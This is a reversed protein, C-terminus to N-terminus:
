GAEALGVSTDTDAGHNLRRRNNGDAWPTRGVAPRRLGNSKNREIWADFDRRTAGANKWARPDKLKVSPPIVVVSSRVAGSALLAASLMHAGDQGPYYNSGDPRRHPADHDGFIVVDRRPGARLWEIILEVGGSCSPRGIAAYGLDLLAALSTPGECICLTGFTPLDAPVFLGESGGTHSFKDGADTRYRIGVTRRMADCMPFSWAWVSVDRGDNTTMREGASWGVHLRRLSAINVGLNNSLWEIRDPPVQSEYRRSLLTVEPSSLRPQQPAHSPRPPLARNLPHRWGGGRIPFASEVRMCKAASGDTAITCWRANGCICCPHSGSVRLWKRPSIM